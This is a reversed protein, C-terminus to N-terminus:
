KRGPIILKKPPVYIEGKKSATRKGEAVKLMAAIWNVQNVTYIIVHCMAPILDKYPPTKSRPNAGKELLQADKMFMEAEKKKEAAIEKKRGETINVIKRDKKEDTPTEVDKTEERNMILSYEMERSFDLKRSGWRKLQGLRM